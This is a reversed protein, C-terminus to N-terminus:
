IADGEYKYIQKITPPQKKDDLETYIANARERLQQRDSYLMNIIVGGQQINPAFSTWELIDASALRFQNSERITASVELNFDLARSDAINEIVSEPVPYNVISKLAEKITM